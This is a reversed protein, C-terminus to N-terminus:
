PSNHWTFFFFFFYLLYFRSRLIWRALITVPISNWVSSGCINPAVICCKTTPPVQCQDQTGRCYTINQTHASHATVWMPCNHRNACLSMQFPRRRAINRKNTARIRNEYMSVFFIRFSTTLRAHRIMTQLKSLQKLVNVSNRAWRINPYLRLEHRFPTTIQLDHSKTNTKKYGLQM